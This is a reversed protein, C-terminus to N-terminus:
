LPRGLGLYLLEEMVLPEFSSQQTLDWSQEVFYNKIGPTKAAAVIKVWDLTDKGVALGPIIRSARSASYQNRCGTRRFLSTCYDFTSVVTQAQFHFGRYFVV